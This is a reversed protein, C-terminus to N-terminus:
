AKIQLGTGVSKARSDGRQQEAVKISRWSRRAMHRQRRADHTGAGADTRGNLVEVFAVIHMPDMPTQEKVKHTELRTSRTSVKSNPYDGGDPVVGSGDLVQQRTM